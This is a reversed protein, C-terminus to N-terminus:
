NRLRAIVKCNKHIIEDPNELLHSLGDIGEAVHTVVNELPLRRQRYLTMIDSFAGCLHGRSGILYIANTIMHDMADIKLPAGSRALLAVRGNPNISRFISNINDMEGSAEIVVDIDSFRTNKFEEISYLHDAWQNALERRFPIPEVMHVVSAGFVTKALIATFLGIPGAGFIIVNDGGKISTNQCAVYAVGAPEVCTMAKLDRDTKAIDTIDHALMAPVNVINGFLGDQELGLLKANRCQNFHGKRCVDCYHCVVISEFTVLSKVDVNRVHKGRAIVKGVGEHGIRRGRDAPISLPASSKIYGTDKNKEVLHVDTGCLGAYIMEVQIEDDGPQQPEYNEVSISPNCFIQHPGPNAIGPMPISDAYIKIQKSKM